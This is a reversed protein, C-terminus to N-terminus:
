YYFKDKSNQIYFNQLKTPMMEIKDLLLTDEEDMVIERNEVMDHLDFENIEKLTLPKM